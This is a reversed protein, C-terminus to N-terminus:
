IALCRTRHASDLSEALALFTPLYFALTKGSGTGSCVVTGTLRPGRSADLIRATANVQFDALLLPRPTGEGLLAAAADVQLPSVPVRSRLRSLLDPLAVHRRPFARAQRLVRYDSVLRPATRWSRRQADPFIQRLTAFLRVAEAFRTRYRREGGSYPLRWLLGADLLPRMLDDESLATLNHEGHCGQDLFERALEEIEQETFFGEILGWTLLTQESQELVNLFELAHQEVPM